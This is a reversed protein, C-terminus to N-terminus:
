GMPPMAGPPMMPPPGQGAGLGPPAMPGQGPPVAAAGPPASQGGGLQQLSLFFQQLTNIDEDTVGTVTLEKFAQALLMALRSGGGGMGPMTRQEIALSAADQAPNGLGVQGTNAPAAFPSMPM